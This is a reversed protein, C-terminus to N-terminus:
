ETTATTVGKRRDYTLTIKAIECLDLDEWIAEVDDTFVVKLDQMCQRRSTALTIKWMEGNEITHDGLIEKGWSKSKTPSVYLESIGFGTRNVLQFSRAQSAAPPSTAPPSAAPPQAPAPAGGGPGAGLVVAMCPGQADLYRNFSGKLEKPVMYDGLAQGNAETEKQLKIVDAVARRDSPPIKEVMCNCWKSRLAAPAQKMVESSNAYDPCADAMVDAMAALPMGLALTCALAGALLRELIFM